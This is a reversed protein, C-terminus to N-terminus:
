FAKEQGGATRVCGEGPEHIWELTEEVQHPPVVLLVDDRGKDEEDQREEEGQEEVSQRPRDRLLYHVSSPSLLLVSEAPFRLM